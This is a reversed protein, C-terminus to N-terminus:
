WEECGSVLKGILMFSWRHSSSSSKCEIHLPEDSSWAEHITLRLDEPTKRQVTDREYMGVWEGFSYHIWDINTIHFRDDFTRRPVRTTACWQMRTRNTKLQLHFDLTDQVGILPIIGNSRTKSHDSKISQTFMYGTCSPGDSREGDAISRDISRIM